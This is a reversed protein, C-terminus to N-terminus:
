PRVEVVLMEYSTAGFWFVVNTPANPAISHVIKRIQALNEDQPHAGDIAIPPSVRQEAEKLKIRLKEMLAKDAIIKGLIEGAQKETLSFPTTTAKGDQHTTVPIDYVVDDSLSMAGLLEEYSYENLTKKVNCVETTTLRYSSV